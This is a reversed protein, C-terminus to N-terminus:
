LKRISSVYKSNRIFYRLNLRDENKIGIRRTNIIDEDAIDTSNQIFLDPTLLSAFNHERTIGLAKTLNGPGKCLRAISDVKRNEIMVGIGALPELARLLVASGKGEAETVVNVCFHAGYIFYVYLIGGFAFMASNRETKGNRSHSSIDNASLYAETEVIKGALTKGDPMKRVFIKGLLRKAVVEPKQLYFEFPLSDDFNYVIDKNKEDIFM